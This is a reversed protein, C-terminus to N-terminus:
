RKAVKRFKDLFSKVVKADLTKRASADGRFRGGHSRLAMFFPDSSDVHIALRALWESISEDEGPDLEDRGMNKEKDRQHRAVESATIGREGSENERKLAERRREFASEDRSRLRGLGCNELLQNVASFDRSGRADRKWWEPQRMDEVDRLLGDNTWKGIRTDRWSPPRPTTGAAIADLKVKLEAMEKDLM